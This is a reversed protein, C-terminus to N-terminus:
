KKPTKTAKKRAQRLIDSFDVGVADAIRLITEFSPLRMEREVYSISQQSLGCKAAVAYISMGRKEREERLIKVFEACIKRQPYDSPVGFPLAFNWKVSYM